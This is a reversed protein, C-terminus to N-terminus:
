VELVRSSIMIAFACMLAAISSLAYLWTTGTLAAIQGGGIGAIMLLLAELSTFFAFGTASHAPDVNSM